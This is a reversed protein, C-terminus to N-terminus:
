LIESRGIFHSGIKLLQDELMKMDQLVCDYVIYVGFDDKVYVEKLSENIEIFEIRGMLRISQESISKYMGARDLEEDETMRSIPEGHAAHYKPYSPCTDLLRNSFLGSAKYNRITAMNKMEAIVTDDFVVM